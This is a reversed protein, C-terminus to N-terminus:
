KSIMGFATLVRILQFVDMAMKTVDSDAIVAVVM